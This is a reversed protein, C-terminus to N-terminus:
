SARDDLFVLLRLLGTQSDFRLLLEDVLEDFERVNDLAHLARRFHLYAISRWECRWRRQEDDVPPCIACNTPPLRHNM